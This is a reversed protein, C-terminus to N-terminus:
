PTPEQEERKPYYPRYGDLVRLGCKACGIADDHGTLSGVQRWEHVCGEARLRVYAAGWAGAKLSGELHKETKEVLNEFSLRSDFDITVVTETEVTAVAGVRPLRCADACDAVLHPDMGTAFHYTGSKPVVFEVVSVV